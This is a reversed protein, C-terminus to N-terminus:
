AAFIGMVRQGFVAFQKIRELHQKELCKAAFKVAFVAKDHVSVSKTLGALGLQVRHCSKGSVLDALIAPRKREAYEIRSLPADDMHSELLFGVEEGFRDAVAAVPTQLDTQLLFNIMFDYLACLESFM